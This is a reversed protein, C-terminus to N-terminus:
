DQQHERHQSLRVAERIRKARSPHRAACISDSFGLKTFFSVQVSAARIAVLVLLAAVILVVALMTGAPRVRVLRQQVQM